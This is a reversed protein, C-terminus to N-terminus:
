TSAPFRHPNLLSTTIARFVPELKEFERDEAQWLILAMGGSFQMSLVRATILLDLCYFYLSYGAAEVGDFRDAYAAEEVEGYESRMTELVEQSLREPDRMGAYMLLEWTAGGPSELSVTRPEDAASDETVSWGEPYLFRVGLKDYTATM